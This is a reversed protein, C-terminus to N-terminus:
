ADGEIKVFGAFDLICGPDLGTFIYTYPPFHDVTLASPAIGLGEGVYMKVLNVVSFGFRVPKVTGSSFLDFVVDVKSGFM